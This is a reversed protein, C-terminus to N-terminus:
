LHAQMTNSCPWAYAIKEALLSCSVANDNMQATGAIMKFTVCEILPSALDEIVASNRDM